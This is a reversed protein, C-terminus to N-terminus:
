VESLLKDKKDERKERQLMKQPSVKEKLERNESSLKDVHKKMKDLEQQKKLRCKLASKRNQM